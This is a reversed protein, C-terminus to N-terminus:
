NTLKQQTDTYFSIEGNDTVVNIGSLDSRILVSRANLPRFNGGHTKSYSCSYKYLGLIESCVLEAQELSGTGDSYFGMYIMKIKGNTRNFITIGQFTTRYRGREGIHTSEKTTIFDTKTNSELIDDRKLAKGLISSGDKGLDGGAQQPERNIIEKPMSSCAVLGLTLALFVIKKM